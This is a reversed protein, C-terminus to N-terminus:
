VTVTGRTTTRAVAVCEMRTHQFAHGATLHTASVMIAAWLAARACAHAEGDCVLVLEDGQDATASDGSDVLRM